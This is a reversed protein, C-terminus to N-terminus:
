QGKNRPHKYKGYYNMRVDTQWALLIQRLSDLEDQSVIELPMKHVFVDTVGPDFVGGTIGEERFILLPLGCAYLIGAELNNWPTPFCTSVNINRESPTGKKLIGLQAEFQSFGLIVGGACHHAMVLVEYLPHKVPYDTRGLTRPELNLRQLETWIVVRAAEQKNNLETPCSVYVPIKM